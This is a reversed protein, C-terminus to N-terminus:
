IRTLCRHRTLIKTKSSAIMTNNFSYLMLIKSDEQTYDLHEITPLDESLVYEFDANCLWNYEVLTM